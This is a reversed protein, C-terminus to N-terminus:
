RGKAGNLFTQVFLEIAEDPENLQSPWIRRSVVYAFMFSMLIRALGDADGSLDGAEVRTRMYDALKRQALKPGDWAQLSSEPNLSEEALSVCILDRRETIRTIGMRCIQRLQEEIPGQLRAIFSVDDESNSCFHDLMTQLLQQKTGFHRFLTAENVEAREAVERTTTGRSGKQAFVERTAALIRQRTEEVSQRGAPEVVKFM